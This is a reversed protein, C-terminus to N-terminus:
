RPKEGREEKRKLSHNMINTTTGKHVQKDGRKRAVPGTKVAERPAPKPPKSLSSFVLGSILGKRGM